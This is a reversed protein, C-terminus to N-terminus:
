DRELVFLTLHYGEDKNITSAFGFGNLMIVRKGRSAKIEGTTACEPSVIVLPIASM